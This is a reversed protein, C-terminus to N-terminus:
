LLIYITVCNAVTHGYLKTNGLLFLYKKFLVSLIKVLIMMKLYLSTLPWHHVCVCVCHLTVGDLKHLCCAQLSSYFLVRQARLCAYSFVPTDNFSIIDAIRDCSM